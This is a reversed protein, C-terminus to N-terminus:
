SVLIDLSHSTFTMEEGNTIAARLRYVGLDLERLDLLGEFGSTSSLEVPWEPYARAVDERSVGYSVLAAYENDDSIPSLTLLCRVDEQFRAPPFIWGVVYFPLDRKAVYPNAVKSPLDIWGPCHEDSRDVDGILSRVTSLGRSKSFRRETLRKEFDGALLQTVTRASRQEVLASQLLLKAARAEEVDGILECYRTFGQAVLEATEDDFPLTTASKARSCAMLWQRGFKRDPELHAGEAWENWANVFVLQEGSPQERSRLVLYTLWTEFKSPTAGYFLNGECGRRATNDWGAMATRYLKFPPELKALENKVVDDYCYASGNFKKTWPIENNVKRATVGHPPFEVAADFGHHLPDDFGFTLCSVIHLEHGHERATARWVEITQRLHPIINPRYVLIVPKGDIRIYRPDSIYKLIDVIFDSRKAPDYGQSIIVEHEAGDWRRTWNENAWCLCFPLDIDPSELLLDLPRELVRRGDFWYHYFCFGDVNHERALAAQARLSERLRLDYFGLETPLQPQNHDPYLPEAKTVNTWETFGRGWAHDNEPIPHFQPLYFAIVRPSHKHEAGERAADTPASSDSAPQAAPQANVPVPPADALGGTPEDKVTM